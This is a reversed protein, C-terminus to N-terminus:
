REYIPALINKQDKSVICSSALTCDAGGLSVFDSRLMSEEEIISLGSKLANNGKIQESTRSATPSLRDDDESDYYVETDPLYSEETTKNTGKSGKSAM